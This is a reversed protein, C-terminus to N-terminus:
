IHDFSAHALLLIGVSLLVEFKSFYNTAVLLLAIGKYQFLNYSAAGIKTGVAYGLM